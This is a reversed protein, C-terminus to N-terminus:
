IEEKKISDVYARARRLANLTTKMPAHEAESPNNMIQEISLLALVPVRVKRIRGQVWTDYFEGTADSIKTAGGRGRTAVLGKWATDGFALIIRPDIRYLIENLRPACAKIQEATPKQYAYREHTENEGAPIINYSPCGVLATHSVTSLDIEASLFLEAVFDSCGNYFDGRELDPLYPAELVVLYDVDEVRGCLYLPPNGLRCKHLECRICDTGWDGDPTNITM